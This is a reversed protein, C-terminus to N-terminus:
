FHIWVQGFALNACAPLRLLGRARAQFGVALPRDRGPQSRRWFGPGKKGGTRGAALGVPGMGSGTSLMTEFAGICVPNCAALAVVGAAAALSVQKAQKMQAVPKVAAKRSAQVPRVAVRNQAALM